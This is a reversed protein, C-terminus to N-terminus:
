QVSAAIFARVNETYVAQLRRTVPGPQGSKIPKGDVQVIPLVECTTGVLFMEDFAAIEERPMNRENVAIGAQEALKLTYGRTISPLVNAKLPTTHLQGNKVAVFTSHSAETLTGDPLYLIAEACGAESSAQNALVNALLNTSKIDCRQWRLDPYTIVACGSQCLPRYSDPYEQVWLLELPVIDRPFAHRRPAAGRTVQLYVMAETFGGESITEHMRRRFRPMDVGTIRIEGLSRTFRDFHEEELWPKAAYVRLVEYVADGFLFGRDLPSITVEDLPMIKGHLNALPKM